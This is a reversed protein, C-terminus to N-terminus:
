GHRPTYPTVSAVIWLTGKVSEAAIAQAHALDDAKIIQTRQYRIPHDFRALFPLPPPSPTPATAM